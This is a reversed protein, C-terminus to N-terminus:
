GGPLRSHQPRLNRDRLQVAGVDYQGPWFHQARDARRKRTYGPPNLEAPLAPTWSAPTALPAPNTATAAFTQGAGTGNANHGVLGNEIDDRFPNQVDLNNFVAVDALCGRFGAMRTSFAIHDLSFRANEQIRALSDTFQYTVRNGSFIQIIGAVLTLGLLMAIMLEILTAGCMKRVVRSFGITNTTTNM